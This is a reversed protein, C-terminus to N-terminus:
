KSGHFYVPAAHKIILFYKKPVIGLSRLEYTEVLQGFKQSIKIRRQAYRLRIDHGNNGKVEGNGSPIFDMTKINYMSKHLMDQTM